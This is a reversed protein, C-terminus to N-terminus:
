GYQIRKAKTQFRGTMRLKLLEGDPNPKETQKGRLDFALNPFRVEAEGPAFPVHPSSQEKKDKEEVM